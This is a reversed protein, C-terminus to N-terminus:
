ITTPFAAGTSVMLKEGAFRAILAPELPFRVKIRAPPVAGAPPNATVRLELLVDAAVIWADAVMGAPPVLTVTGTVPTAAPDDVIVALADLMALVVAPTVTEPPPPPPPVLEKRGDLKDTETPETPFRVKFRDAAAGAPKITLRVELLGPTAVTVDDTFKGALAVLKVMGTVATAAPVVVM